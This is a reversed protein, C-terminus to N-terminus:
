RSTLVLCRLLEAVGWAQALCGGPAFPPAADFVESISGICADGLHEILGELKARAGAVDDPHVRLRADIYPGILWSWVTGQHYAADRTLLDGRYTPKYDPHSPALSRLGLPTVLDREVAGLVAPWHAPDLVANPLSIAFLQNPRCAADDGYEGDVLDYLHDTAANWFRRNFSAHARDAHETMEKAGDPDGTRALWDSMLRLANYWLANIEVAKGRRPTVVWDGAKADMWTLQYGPAGQHVLGDDPDVRIGFRTGRLHYEVVDRLMPLLKILTRRDGSAHLYRDLAHFFWLTADATHYVGDNEGEPFMNPILGDRIHHAFMRLISGAESVRGTLLTLGELSIMTDRGWDTFWHYGAIVTWAEDGAARARIHDERRGAPRIVFQDAALVLEAAAGTRAPPVAADLLRRRREREAALTEQSSMTLITDWSETSVIMEAHHGDELHARFRGPSFLNGRSEYGRSAEITYVLDPVTLPELVFSSREASLHLRLRPLDNPAVLEIRSGYATLPYAEPLSTSVPEDHGRFHVGPRLELRVPGGALLKYVIMTTNTQNSIVIRKEIAVGHGEYRWVPLGLELSFAVLRLANNSAYMPPVWGVDVRTGDALRLQCPLSSLMMVRGAPNPLAAVLLGHYRRTPVGLVTGSAYGGLGNTVLWEQNPTPDIAIKRIPDAAPEAMPKKKM